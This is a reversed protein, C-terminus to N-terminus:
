TIVARKLIRNVETLSKSLGVASVEYDRASGTKLRESSNNLNVLLERFKFKRGPALLDAYLDCRRAFHDVDETVAQMLVSTHKNDTLSAM